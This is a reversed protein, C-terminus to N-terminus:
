KAGGREKMLAEIRKQAAALEELRAQNRQQDEILKQVLGELQTLRADVQQGTGAVSEASVAQGAASEPTPVGGPYRQDIFEHLRDAAHGGPPEPTTDGPKGTM